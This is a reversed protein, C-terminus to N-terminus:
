SCLQFRSQQFSRLVGLKPGFPIWLWGRGRGPGRQGSQRREQGAKELPIKLSPLGPHLPWGGM